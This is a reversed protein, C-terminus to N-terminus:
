MVAPTGESAMAQHIIDTSEFDLITEISHPAPSGDTSKDSFKHVTWSKLGHPKWTSEAMPMHRKLYYDLDFTAGPPTTPYLVHVRAPM